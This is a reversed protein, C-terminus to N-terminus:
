KKNNKFQFLVFSINDTSGVEIAEQLLSKIFKETEKKNPKSTKKRWKDIRNCVQSTSFAEFLGDSAQFLYEINHIKKTYLDPVASIYDSVSGSNGFARSLNLLGEVRGEEIRGGQERILAAEKAVTPSHDSTCKRTGTVTKYVSKSDGVNMIHLIMQEKDVVVVNATSGSECYNSLITDQLEKATRRLAGPINKKSGHKKFYQDLLKPFKETLFRACDEGGHGDFVCSIIYTPEDRIVVFDEMYKRCGQVRLHNIQIKM